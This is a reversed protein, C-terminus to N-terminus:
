NHYTDRVLGLHQSSAPPPIPQKRISWTTKEAGSKNYDPVASKSAQLDYRNQCSYLGCLNLLVQLDCQKNAAFFIDDAVAPAAIRITGIMAGAGVGNSYHILLKNIFFEQCSEVKAYENHSQSLILHKVVGNLEEPKDKNFERTM